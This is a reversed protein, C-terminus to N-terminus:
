DLSLNRLRRLKPQPPKPVDMQVQVTVSKRYEEIADEPILLKGRGLGHREHRLKRGTCLARITSPSVHLTEAAEAITLLKVAM